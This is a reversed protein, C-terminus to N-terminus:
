TTLRNELIKDELRGELQLDKASCTAVAAAPVLGVIESHAVAVGRLAAERKVMNFVRLLPTYAYSTLNMSVQVFGRAALDLGLAKVHPLGGSSYRVRAAIAKAVDVDRTDLNVNFAILLPRAGIVTAGASPHPIPPGFDPRWAPQQMRAALGEFGGRRIEELRRRNPHIAAEEYLFVPLQHRQAVEAGVQRALAVCDAMTAEELPVLPVVDVAGLRPHVGAHRRLDITAVAREFLALIGAHLAEAEGAFTYVTRHHAADSSVDLLRAPTGRIAEACAEIVDVRRGESVNSVCEILPMKRVQLVNLPVSTNEVPRRM